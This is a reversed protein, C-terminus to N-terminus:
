FLPKPIHDNLISLFEEIDMMAAGMSELYTTFVQCDILVCGEMKLQAVYNMFAFRSANSVLSFMSEGFFINGLRVGYLGGVLENNLWVEASIAYGMSHLSEYACQMEHTIWTGEQGPRVIKKCHTIVEKFSTNFRYEFPTRDIAVRASRPMKFQSPDLVFRPQPCWWLIPEQEYWPFIGKSYALVLRAPNLDGGIALLGDPQAHKWSPFAM